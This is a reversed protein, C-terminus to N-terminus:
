QIPEESILGQEPANNDQQKEEGKTQNEGDANSALPNHLESLESDTMNTIEFTYNASAGAVAAEVSQSEMELKQLKLKTGILSDRMNKFFVYVSSVDNAGGKIDVLGNGQTMFYTLWVDQPINEGAAVFNMLKARNGKVGMEVERKLDFSTIDGSDDQLTKLEESEANVKETIENVKKQQADKAFPIVVYALLALIGCVVVAFAGAAMLAGQKTITYEHEGIPITCSEADAANMKSPMYNFKLPFDSVDALACGIAQLSIRSIYSPLVNLSVPILSDQKKFANNELSDITGMINLKSCLADASVQDTDSVVYLYNAPYSSLAIQASQVIADYIEDEEFSKIPLPEEYYEIVNKGSLSVISYGVSNVIMLNWTTNPQMQASTIGMYDLARFTSSLSNEVGVLTSGLEALAAGIKEVVPQQIASYLVQRTEKGPANSAASPVDIWSVIPEARRFIYTQEIEGQIAGTIADNPLLLGLQMTGFSVLPMNVVVEVKPNIGLEAYMDAVAKTFAEYDVIERSADNYALDRVAYNAVTNSGFDLQILELGVGPTVSLYVRSKASSVNKGLFSM